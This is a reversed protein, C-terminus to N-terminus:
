ALVKGKYEKEAKATGERILDACFAGMARDSYGAMARVRRHLEDDLWLLVAKQGHRDKQHTKTKTEM